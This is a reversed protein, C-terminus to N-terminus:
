DVEVKPLNQGNTGEDFPNASSSWRFTEPRAINFQLTFRDFPGLKIDLFHSRFVGLSRLAQVRQLIPKLYAFDKNSAARTVLEELAADDSTPRNTKKNLIPPLGLRDYLIYMLMPPSNFWPTGTSSFRWEKPMVQTLWAELQTAQEFCDQRMQRRLAGDDNIGRLSMQRALLWERMRWSLQTEYGRRKILQALVQACEFTKRTDKCNYKWLDEAALAGAAWEDSEDKWYLHHDCYLSAIYHLAAPTGPYLLHHTVMTDFTVMANIGYRNLFLSDYIFNQGIIRINPHELLSRLRRWIELESELPWYPVTANNIFYFFPICLALDGDCLGICSIYTRAYTEIDVSIQLTEGASLKALWLNLAREVDLLSPKWCDNTQPAQWTTLGALYRAARAKLDHVTPSRFGWERLIAAPHIIPLLPLPNTLLPWRKTLSPSSAVSRSFTQSGRWSTIGAPLKYGNKTSVTAHNSLIHLPINGAALVLSPRVHDLLRWLNSISASLEPRPYLGDYSAARADKAEKNPTLFKTFDNGPPQESIVNTCLISDRSLGAEALMRNLEHGSAGVFPQRQAAESSGWAEGVLVVKANRPGSTHKYLDNPDNPDNTPM